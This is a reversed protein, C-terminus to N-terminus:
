VAPYVDDKRVPHKLIGALVVDPMSLRQCIRLSNTDWDLLAVPSLLDEGWMTVGSTARRRNVLCVFHPLHTLVNAALHPQASQVLDPCGDHAWTRWFCSAAM